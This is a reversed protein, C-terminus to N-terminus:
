SLPPLRSWVIVSRRVARQLHEVRRVTQGGAVRGPHGSANDVADVHLRRRRQGHQGARLRESLVHAVSRARIASKSACRSRAAEVSKGGPSHPLAHTASAKGVPLAHAGNVCGGPPTDPTPRPRSRQRPPRQSASRRCRAREGAGDPCQMAQVLLQPNRLTPCATHLPPRGGPGPEPANPRRVTRRRRRKPRRPRRRHAPDSTPWALPPGPGHSAARTPGVALGGDAMGLRAPESGALLLDGRGGPPV